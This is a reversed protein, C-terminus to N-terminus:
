EGFREGEGADCIGFGEGGRCGLDWNKVRGQVGFGLAKVAGAGWTGFGEGAREGPPTHGTGADEVAFAFSFRAALKRMNSAVEERKESSRDISQVQTALPM